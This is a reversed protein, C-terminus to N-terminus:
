KKRGTELYIERTEEDAFVQYIVWFCKAKEDYLIGLSVIDCSNDALLHIAEMRAEDYTFCQIM